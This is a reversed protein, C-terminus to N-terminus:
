TQVEAGIHYNSGAKYVRYSSGVQVTTGKPVFAKITYYGDTIVAFARNNPDFGIVTGYDVLQEPM